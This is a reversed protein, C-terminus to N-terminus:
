SCMWWVTVFAWVVALVLFTLITAALVNVRKPTRVWKLHHAIKRLAYWDQQDGRRILDGDSLTGSHWMSEIKAFTFPGRQNGAKYIWYVAEMSYSVAKPRV